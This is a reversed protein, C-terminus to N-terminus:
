HWVNAQGSWAPSAYCLAPAVRSTRGDADSPALVLVLVYLVVLIIIRAM